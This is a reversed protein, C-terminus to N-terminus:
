DAPHPSLVLHTEVGEVRQLLELLRIGYIVGSSGTIGIILKKTM